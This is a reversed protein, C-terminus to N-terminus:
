HNITVFTLDEFQEVASVKTDERLQAIVGVFIDWPKGTSECRDLYDLIRARTQLHDPPLLVDDEMVSIRAKGMRLASRCLYKYSLACGIWGQSARIGDFVYAKPANLTEYLQRRHFTEPLSLAFFDHDQVETGRELTPFDNPLYRLPKCECM